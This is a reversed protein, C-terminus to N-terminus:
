MHKQARSVVLQGSNTSDSTCPSLPSKALLLAAAQVVEEPKTVDSFPINGPRRKGHHWRAWFKSFMHHEMAGPIKRPDISPFDEAPIADLYRCFGEMELRLTDEYDKLEEQLDLVQGHLYHITSELDQRKGQVKDQYTARVAQLLGEKSQGERAGFSGLWQPRLNQTGRLPANDLIEVSTNDKIMCIYRNDKALPNAKLKLTKLRFLGNLIQVTESLSYIHNNSVDASHLNLSSSLPLLTQIQNNQVHLERLHPINQIGELSELKNSDIHVETLNSLVPMTRLTRIRNHSVNLIQLMKCHELGRVSTLANYSLQLVILHPLVSVGPFNKLANLSANLECLNEFQFLAEKPLDELENLSVDLQLIRPESGFVFDFCVEKLRSMKMDLSFHPGETKINWTFLVMELVTGRDEVYQRSLKKEM